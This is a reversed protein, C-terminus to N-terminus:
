KKQILDYLKRVDVRRDELRKDTQTWREADRVDNQALKITMKELKDEIVGLRRSEKKLFYGLVSLCTGVGILVYESFGM